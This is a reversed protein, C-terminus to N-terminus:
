KKLNNLSHRLTAMKKDLEAASAIRARALEALLARMNRNATPDKKGDRRESDSDNGHDQKRPNFIKYVRMQLIGNGHSRQFIETKMPGLQVEPDKYNIYHKLQQSYKAPISKYDM